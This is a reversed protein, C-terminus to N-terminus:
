PMNQLTASRSEILSELATRSTSEPLLTPLWHNKLAELQAKLDARDTGALPSHAITMGQENEGGPHERWRGAPDDVLTELTRIMARSTAEVKGELQALGHMLRQQEADECLRASDRKLGHAILRLLEARRERTDIQEAPPEERPVFRSARTAPDEHEPGWLLYELPHFGLTLYYFDTSQHEERLFGPTLPTESHVLGSRPYGPVRDLYGPLLPWADIPDRDDRVQPPTLGALQYGTMLIQYQRHASRWQERAPILTSAKPNAIFTAVADKLQTTAECTNRSHEMVRSQIAEPVAAPDPARSAQEQEPGESCGAVLLGLLTLVLPWRPAPAPQPQCRTIRTM